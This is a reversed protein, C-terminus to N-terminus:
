AQVSEIAALAAIAQDAALQHVCFRGPGCHVCNGPAHLIQLRQSRPAWVAPDTPGFVVVGRAGVVGALHSIGSDNGLYVRCRRLLAAVRPLSLGAVSIADVILTTPRETEAPGLLVVVAERRQTHWHRAVAGFGEWNKERAGSGPHMLLFGRADLGHQAAFGTFWQPDDAIITCDIPAATLGACRAYYDVAHEGPQMGRFRHVGVQGGTAQALRQAFHATGFGTWSYVNGFGGFLATTEAAISPSTSFLDAVERRDISVTTIDALRILDLLAPHAVMCLRGVHRARLAALTPLVCLGDGLAGPFLVLANDSASAM